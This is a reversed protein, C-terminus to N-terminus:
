IVATGTATWAGRVRIFDYVGTCVKHSARQLQARRGVFAISESVM